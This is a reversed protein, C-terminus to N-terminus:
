KAFIQGAFKAALGEGSGLAIKGFNRRCVEDGRRVGPGLGTYSFEAPLSRRRGEEERSGSSKALNCLTVGVFKAAVGGEHGRAVKGFSQKFVAGSRRGEPGIAEMGFNRRCVEGGRRGMPGLVLKGFSRRCGEDCRVGEPGVSGQCFKGM